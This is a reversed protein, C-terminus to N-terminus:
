VPESMRDSHVTAMPEESSSQEFITMAESTCEEEPPADHTLTAEDQSMALEQSLDVEDNEVVVDDQSIAMENQSPATEEQLLATESSQEIPGEVSAMNSMIPEDTLAIESVPVGSPEDASAIGALDSYAQEAPEVFSQDLTQEGHVTQDAMAVHDPDGEPCSSEGLVAAEGDTAVQEDGGPESKTVITVIICKQVLDRM